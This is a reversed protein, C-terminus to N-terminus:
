ICLRCGVHMLCLGVNKSFHSLTCNALMRGNDKLQLLVDVFDQLM